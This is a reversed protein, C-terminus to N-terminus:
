EKIEVIAVRVVTEDGDDCYGFVQDRDHGVTRLGRTTKVAWMKRAGEPVVMGREAAVALTAEIIDEYSLDWRGHKVSAVVAAVFADDVQM